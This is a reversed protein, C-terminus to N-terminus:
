NNERAKDLLYHLSNKAETLKRIRKDLDHEERLLYLLEEKVEELRKELFEIAPDLEKM